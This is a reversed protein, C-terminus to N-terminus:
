FGLEDFRMEQVEEETLSSSAEIRLDRTTGSDLDEAVVSVLGDTDIEFGIRVRVEGRRAARLRDLVFAGLKENDGAMRSEGQYVSVRVETQYDQATHFVKSADTPIPSNRPILIECFGGATKIGLSQPTVDVLVSSGADPDDSTLNHAQIAAGIAVVEDPNIGTFPEKNFYHMVADRIVPARSMGGVMLVHDIQRASMRAQGLADDCTLFTKQVLHNVIGAYDSRTMVTSLGIPQGDPGRVVDPVEIEVMDTTSLAVKAREAASRLKMKASRNDRIDLGHEQEFQHLLHEAAAYDFDDGGLFTDGATSVVEFIDDDIRLVSVDFTGGGLDYVVIHQRKSKNFGYALAASTPENIIRLCQLGAITAADKTAQRQHDNFYAPVTIVAQDVTEGLAKEAIEKMHRLVMASVEPLALVRDGVKVRADGKPGEVIDFASNRQIRAVTDSDFRRGILRKASAVTSQPAYIQNRRARHGVVVSGTRGLAVVSPQTKNGQDDALVRPEGDVVVAVCSNSTGLDIGIAAGM